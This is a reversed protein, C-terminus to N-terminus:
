EISPVGLEVPDVRFVVQSVDEGVDGLAGDVANVCMFHAYHRDTVRTDKHGLQNAITRITTGNMALHSAYTHRLIHFTVQELTAIKCAEDMANRNLSAM